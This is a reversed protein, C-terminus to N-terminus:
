KYQLLKVRFRDKKTTGVIEGVIFKGFGRITLPSGEKVEYNKKEM